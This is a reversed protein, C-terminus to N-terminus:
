SFLNLILHFIKIFFGLFGTHIVGCYPCHDGGTMKENCEDCKGNNDADVHEHEDPNQPEQNYVENYRINNNKAYTMAYSDKEVNATLSNCGSFASSGISTINSLLDISKLSSCGYFAGYEIKTVSSPVTVKELSVCDKFANPSITKLGNEFTVETLGAGQFADDFSTLSAPLTIKKLKGCNLFANSGIKELGSPFNVSSLDACQAFSYSGIEKLGSPLTVSQLGAFSFAGNEIKQTGAPVTYSSGAKGIPYQVLDKGDYSFLVGGAAKYSTSGSSVTFASLSECNYFASDEIATVSAPINVSSLSSCQIFAESGIKTVGDPIVVNELAICSKFLRSNVTQLTAPLVVTKLNPCDAFAEARIYVPKDAATFTVSELYYCGKFASQYVNTVSSPVTVTKIGNKSEFAGEGIALVPKGNHEAPIEVNEGSSSLGKVMYGTQFSEFAFIAESDAFASPAAAIILLSVIILSILKNAKNKM